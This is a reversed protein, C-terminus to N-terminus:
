FTYMVGFSGSPYVYESYDTMLGISPQLCLRRSPTLHIDAGVGGGVLGVAMIIVSIGGYGYPRWSMKPREMVSIPYMRVSAAAWIPIFPMSFNIGAYKGAYELKLNASICETSFGACTGIRFGHIRDPEEALTLSSLLLMPLM